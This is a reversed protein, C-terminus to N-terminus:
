VSVQELITRAEILDPNAVQGAFRSCAAHLVHKAADPRNLKRLLRAMSVAARLELMRAHQDQAVRLAEAFCQEAASISPESQELLLEGELRLLEAQWCREGQSSVLKQAESLAGLGEDIRKQRLYIEALLALTFTNNLSAGAAQAASLGKVLRGLGQEDGKQDLAWGQLSTAWALPVEFSYKTSLAIAEETLHLTQETDRLTSYTWAVTTLTFALTFPHELERAMGIAERSLAEVQDVEGLIWLARALMIRATIGPDQTYPLAQSRHRAPDYLSKAALLHAKAENFRGLFSYTSGVSEHARILMDPNHERQALSLLHEALDCATALPGRVLHFVWLGWVALFHHGSDSNEQSLEKARLYNREIEQSAYGKVTVMPAGRAILLDLESTDREPGEPLKKVMALASNFHNLAEVNASRDADRRAALQWYTIASRTLGAQECHYALLEPELRVREAFKEELTQAIRAHLLRRSKKPLTNYAAEQVLMHKFRYRSLPREGEQLILGSSVFLDLAGNLRNDTVDVAARLLEYTFERGIAAGIQVIEKVPGLRDVREMLLAQLSDPIVMDKLPAKLTFADTGEALLGTELLNETLAEIYLPVGDTKALIAQQVEQPLVKGGTMTAILEVSQRRPFRNLTLFTVHSYEAWVPRFDPRFTVLLLVRMQRIRDITRTMLDLTTPDLWHADEVILLVPSHDALRQLYQVLAELTMDKRKDPSVNPLQYREDGRISLLDALLAVTIRDDLGSSAVLADLKHLQAPASDEGALGAAQRLYTVVPYLATNTHHPSCQSQITEYRDGTLQDRLYRVLRSKGIGAEGCLLVVQGEGDVAERWRGLLLATEHERGIFDALRGSRYSEFRSASPKACLVQWIRVPTEYGKLSVTGQDAFEFEGGVLRKTVSDVILQNPAAVGQLRSALNPTEGFVSREKATDQGILEGVIVPGTAIGIRTAIECEQEPRYERPLAKVLEIVALGAHVAREADHEHAHPYGFYVLLGDGMYKAIYGNFRSIAEGCTDLFRRISAQLDEPDLRRALATSGVLDCFMVTLQRREAQDRGSPFPTAEPDTAIPVTQLGDSDAKQPLHAIARLLRKRHGLVVGLSALDGDNLEPLVDWTIANQQFVDRYRDLGLSELWASVRDDMM